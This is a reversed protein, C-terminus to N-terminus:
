KSNPNTSLFHDAGADVAAGGTQNITWTTLRAAPGAITSGIVPVRSAAAGVANGAGTAIMDLSLVDKTTEAAVTPWISTNPNNIQTEVFQAAGAAEPFIASIPFVPVAEPGGDIDQLRQENIMKTNQTVQNQMQEPTMDAPFASKFCPDPLCTGSDDTGSQPDDGSAANAQQVNGSNPASGNGNQQNDGAAANAQQLNGNNPASGSGNQQDDGNDPSAPPAPTGTDTPLSSAESLPGYNALVDDPVTKWYSPLGADNYITQRNGGFNEAAGAGAQQSGGPAPVWLGPGTINFYECGGDNCTRTAYVRGGVNYPGGGSSGLAGANTTPNSVPQTGRSNPSSNLYVIRDNPGYYYSCSSAGSPCVVNPGGFNITCPDAQTCDSNGRTDRAKSLKADKSKASSIARVQTKSDRTNAINSKQRKPVDRNKSSVSFKPKDPHAVAEHRFEFRRHTIEPRNIHTRPVNIAPRSVHSRPINVTPRIHPRSINPRPINVGPRPINPRPIHITPRPINPRPIEFARAQHGGFLAICVFALPVAFRLNM